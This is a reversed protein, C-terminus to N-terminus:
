SKGAGTLLERNAFRDSVNLAMFMDTVEGGVCNLDQPIKSRKTGQHIEAKLKSM